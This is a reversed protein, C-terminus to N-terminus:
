ISSMTAHRQKYGASAAALAALTLLFVVIFLLVHLALYWSCQNFFVFLM